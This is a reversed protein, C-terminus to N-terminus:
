QQLEMLVLFLLYIKKYPFTIFDVIVYTYFLFIFTSSCITQIFCLSSVGYLSYLCFLVMLGWLVFDYVITDYLLDFPRCHDALQEM